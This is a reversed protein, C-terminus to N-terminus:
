QYARTVVDTIAAAVQAQNFGLTKAKMVTNWVEDLLQQTQNRKALEAGALNVLSQLDENSLQTVDM